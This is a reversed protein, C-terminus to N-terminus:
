PAVPHSYTDPKTRDFIENAWLMVVMDESGINTIDHSWGPISEVVQPVDSTVVLEFYEGTIVHRFGFRATGKAVLFKENKSHHFHVGRTTGPHATFFSFQGSDTTKLMEVFVGRADAYRPVGYAFADTPLYSLYTAYLARMLGSGVRDITLTKRSEKFDYLYRALEGLTLSYVPEVQGFFDSAPEDLAAIFSTVVDDVYVLRLEAAPDRIEIPLDRAVNHCFTAVVSNYNPRCWKGFVNPLRYVMVPNRTATKYELLVDEAMRKSIGYPNEQTAQASSTYVVPISRGTASLLTCLHRTFDVNGVVFEAPGPPRNVGALHFVFDCEAIALALDQETSARTIPLLQAQPRRGLQVLLNKGIFGAAGTVLIRM